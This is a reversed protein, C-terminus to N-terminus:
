IIMVPLATTIIMKVNEDASAQPPNVTTVSPNGEYIALLAYNIIEQHSGLYATLCVTSDWHNSIDKYEQSTVTVLKYLYHENFAILKRRDM